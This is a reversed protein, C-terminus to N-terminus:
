GRPSEGRRSAKLPKLRTVIVSSSFRQKRVTQRPQEPQFGFAIAQVGPPGGRPSVRILLIGGKGSLIGNLMAPSMAVALTALNSRPAPAVKGIIADEPSLTQGKSTIRLRSKQELDSQPPNSPPVVPAQNIKRTHGSKKKPPGETEGHNNASLSLNSETSGPRLARYLKEIGGEARLREAVQDAPIKESLFKDLVKAYRSQRNRSRTDTANTAFYLVSKMVNKLKPKQRSSEFFEHQAFQEYQDPNALFKEAAEYSLELPKYIREMYGTVSAQFADFTQSFLKAAENVIEIPDRQEM